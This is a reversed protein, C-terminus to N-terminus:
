GGITVKLGHQQLIQIIKNRHEDEPASFKAAQYPLKLKKYKSAASSHYPLVDINQVNPLAAVTQAIKKIHELGDNVGQIMPLRMRIKNGNEALFVLNSLIKKNDVGTWDKHPGKELHKIDFLFLDTHKAIGQITELSAYGSTDVTRHIDLKGVAQLLALLFQHQMLPEGGSFTVGGGSQDFFPRDKVIEKIVEDVTATWGTAQLALSPCIEVCEFCSNCLQYDITLKKDSFSLAQEPCGLVCENCFICSQESWTLEPQLTLGEPNHCWKCALPCGKLFVTTRINPGDHLAYRKIAFITGQISYNM